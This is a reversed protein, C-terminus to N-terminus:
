SMVSRRVPTSTDVGDLYASIEALHTDAESTFIELLVPDIDSEADIDAADGIEAEAVMEAGTSVEDDAAPMAAHCVVATEPVDPAASLTDALADDVSFAAEADAADAVDASLSAHNDAGAVSPAAV